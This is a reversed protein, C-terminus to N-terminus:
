CSTKSPQVTYAMRAADRGYQANSLTGGVQHCAYCLGGVLLIQHQGESCTGRGGRGDRGAARSGALSNPLQPMWQMANLGPPSSSAVPPASGASQTTMCTGVMCGTWVLM